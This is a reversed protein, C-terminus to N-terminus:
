WAFLPPTPICAARVKDELKTQVDRYRRDDAVNDRELPDRRYDYLEKTGGSHHVYLYRRTTYGCYAPGVSPAGELLSGKRDRSFISRGEVGPLAAGAVELISASIDTNTVLAHLRSSAPLVGDFRLLMPVRSSRTYPVYKNLYRHSGLQVGNDSMYVFFTDQLRPGLAKLVSGVAEDVSRLAENMDRLNRQTQSREARPLAQVWAPMGKVKNAFWDPVAELPLSGEHRPAPTFPRHPGTTSVVLFLPRRKPTSSIFKVAHRAIVDTSYDRPARRYAKPRGTGTLLYDYYAGAGLNPNGNLNRIAKFRDWGAPVFDQPTKIWGNLYKGFLATRYGRERLATALTRDEGEFASWGGHEGVNKYVGNRHALQGTLLAARSPCCTSTPILAHSVRVGHGLLRRSTIPMADWTGRVQDDSLFVVIDPRRTWAGSGVPRTLDPASSAIGVAQLSLAEAENSRKSPPLLTTTAALVLALAALVSAGSARTWRRGGPGEAAM